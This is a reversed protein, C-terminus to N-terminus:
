VVGIWREPARWVMVTVALGVAALGAAVVVSRGVFVQEVVVLGVTERQRCRLAGTRPKVDLM